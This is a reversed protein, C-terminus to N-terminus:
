LESHVKPKPATFVWQQGASETCRDLVLQLGDAVQPGKAKEWSERQEGKPDKLGACLEPDKKYKIQDKEMVWEAAHSSGRCSGLTIANGKAAKDVNAVVMCLKRSARYIIHDGEGVFKFAAGDQCSRVVIHSGVAGEDNEVALCYGQDVKYRIQDLGLNTTSMVWKHAGTESSGWLLSTHCTWLILDAGDGSAGERVSVCYNPDKKYKIEGDEFIWNYAHDEDNCSWLILDSGDGELGERVSVCYNQNVWYRLKTGDVVWKFAPGDNCSWLILDAGDGERGERVSMCYHENAQFRIQKSAEPPEIAPAMAQLDWHFAEEEACTWLILDSGDGAKGERVSVCFKPDAAYRIKNGDITWRFAHHDDHCSWLIINTGDGANGARIALCYRLDASYRIKDGHLVWRFEAADTCSWLIIDSGDGAKGERVSACYNPNALYRLRDTGMGDAGLRHTPSSSAAFTWKSTKDDCKWLILDAGDGVKGERVSVCQDPQAKSKIMGNERIFHFAKTDDCSWLIMDAGNGLYGERVSMCYHQNPRYRIKDGSVVWKWASADGCTWLILDSGDGEKGERVSMCFDENSALRIQDAAKQPTMGKTQTKHQGGLGTGRTESKKRNSPGAWVRCNLLGLLLLRRWNNM